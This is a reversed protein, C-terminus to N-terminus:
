PAHCYIRPFKTKFPRYGCWTDEWFRCSVGNEIKRDCFSLLDIGRLKLRKIATLIGSWSSHCSSSISDEMIGGHAGYLNKIVRVWLDPPNCLFRWMWKFLLGINLGYISGIGIGGLDKNSLCKRWKVWTIKKEELDGCIFFNNRMSELKKQVSIPMLYISMYYTPLNELVSKILSLRGGVSLLRAKWLSLNSSFKHIIDNWNSCRAMNCGVPVGLYKMPLKAAGCSIAHAMNSVEEYSVGVGISAGKFLGMSEVKYTLVHLGEMALISLFLSLPDGQRLGRLSDFAKEFDVKFVMLAKKRKRYWAMDENLILPGDLINRGKIFASQEPSICSGIVKSLRQFVLGVGSDVIVKVGSTALMGTGCCGRRSEFFGNEVPNRIINLLPHYIDFVVLRLEPFIKILDQSTANLKKNFAMADKNLRAVCKNRGRGFLTIAVPLCGTPPLTTVGIKRVGLSYLS